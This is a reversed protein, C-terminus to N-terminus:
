LEIERSKLVPKSEDAIIMAKAYYKHEGDVEKKATAVATVPEGKATVIQVGILRDGDYVAVILYPNKRDFINKATMTATATLQNESPTLEFSKFVFNEEFSVTASAGIKVNTNEYAVGGVSAYMGVDPEVYIEGPTSTGYVTGGTTASVTYNTHSKVSTINIIDKNGIKGKQSNYCGELFIITNKETSSSTKQRSGAFVGINTQNGSALGTKTNLRIEPYLVLTTAGTVYYSSKWGWDWNNYCGTFVRRSVDGGKLTIYTNGSMPKSQCGGFLAEALGGTMTIHTDCDVLESDASGGYVNMVKGGNIFINTDTATGTAGKGSGVLFYAVANGELTVNTKGNVTAWEGGGYVYCPSINSASDDTGDNPNVNGGVIVHTDGTVAKGDGGGFIASYQGGYLRIDTNQCETTGGGYVKLRSDSTVNEGIELRYGNAHIIATNSLVVNDIKLNGNLNVTSPMKLKVGSTIGEIFVDGSYATTADYYEMDDLLVIRTTKGLMGYAWAISKLPSDESMGSNSNDGNSSVYLIKENTEPIEEENAMVVMGFMFIFVMILCLKKM